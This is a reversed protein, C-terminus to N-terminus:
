KLETNANSDNHNLLEEYTSVKNEIDILKSSYQEETIKEWALENLYYVKRTGNEYVSMIDFFGTGGNDFYVKELTEHERASVFSKKYVGDESYCFSSMFRPLRWGKEVSSFLRLEKFQEHIELQVLPVLSSIEHVSFRSSDGDDLLFIFFPGVEVLPLGDIRRFDKAEPSVGTSSLFVKEMRKHFDEIKQKTDYVYFHIGDMHDIYRLESLIFGLCFVSLFVLIKLAIKRFRKGMTYERKTALRTAGVVCNSSIPKTDFNETM